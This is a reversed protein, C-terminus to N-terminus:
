DRAQSMMFAHVLGEREFNGVAGRADDIRRDIGVSVPVGVLCSYLDSSIAQDRAGDRGQVAGPPRAIMAQCSPPCMRTATVTSCLQYLRALRATVLSV